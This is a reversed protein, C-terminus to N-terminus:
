EPGGTRFEGFLKDLDDYDVWLQVQPLRDLARDNECLFVMADPDEDIDRERM